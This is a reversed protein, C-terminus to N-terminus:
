AMLSSFHNNTSNISPSKLDQIVANALMEALLEILEQMGQNVPTAVYKTSSVDVEPEKRLGTALLLKEGSSSPRYDGRFVMAALLLIKEL